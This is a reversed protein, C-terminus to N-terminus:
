NRFFVVHIKKKECETTKEYNKTNKKKEFSFSWTHKKFCGYPNRTSISFTEPETNRDKEMLIATEFSVRNVFCKEYINIHRTSTSICNKTLLCNTYLCVCIIVLVNHNMSLIEKLPIEVHNNELFCLSVYM